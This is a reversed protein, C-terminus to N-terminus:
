HALERRVPRALGAAFGAAYAAQQLVFVVPTLLAV